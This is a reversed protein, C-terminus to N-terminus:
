RRRPSSSQSADANAQYAMLAGESWVMPSKFPGLAMGLAGLTLILGSIAFGNSWGGALMALLVAVAAGILLWAFVGIAGARVARM